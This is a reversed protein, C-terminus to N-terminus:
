LAGGPFRRLYAVPGARQRGTAKHAIEVAEVVVVAAVPKGDRTITVFEGRIASDSLNARAMRPWIRYGHGPASSRKRHGCDMLRHVVWSGVIRLVWRHRSRHSEIDPDAARQALDDPCIDAFVADSRGSM